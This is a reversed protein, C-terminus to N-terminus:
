KKKGRFGNKPLHIEYRDIGFKGKGLGKCSGFGGLMALALMYKIDNIKIRPDPLFRYEFALRSGPAVCESDHMISVRGRPTSVNGHFKIYYTEAPKNGTRNRFYIRGLQKPELASFGIAVVKGFEALNKKTGRYDVFLGIGSAAAKLNAKIMWEGLWPGLKNKRLQNVGYSLKEKLEDKPQTVDKEGLEENLMRSVAEKREKADTIKLHHLAFQDLAEENAPLGGVMETRMTCYCRIFGTFKEYLKNLDRESGTFVM